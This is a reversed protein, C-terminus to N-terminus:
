DQASHFREEPNKELAHRIIRELGASLNPNFSSVDAPEEKLIASMTDAPSAGRFARRGTLMEFLIAGLSFLDSRHDVAQGRVQEPSMYGITGLVMGPETGMAETPASTAEESAARAEQQFPARRDPDLTVASHLVKIAVDRALRPDRARYVEGLGGQGLLAVIEYPGLRTGLPLSM